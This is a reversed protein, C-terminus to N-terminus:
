TAHYSPLHTDNQRWKHQGKHHKHCVPKSLIDPVSEKKRQVFGIKACLEKYFAGYYAGTRLSRWLLCQDASDTVSVNLLGQSPLRPTEETKFTGLRESM